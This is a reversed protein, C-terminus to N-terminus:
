IEIIILLKIDPPNSSFSYLGAKEHGKLYVADYSHYKSYRLKHFAILLYNM